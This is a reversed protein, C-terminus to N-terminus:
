TSSSPPMATDVDAGHWAGNEWWIVSVEFAAEITSIAWPETPEAACVLFTRDIPRGLAFRIEATRTAAARLDSYTPEASHLVEFLLTGSDGSQIIDAINGDEPAGTEWLQALLRHRLREHISQQRDAAVSTQLSAKSTQPPRPLRLPLRHPPCVTSLTEQSTSPLASTAGGDISAPLAAHHVISLSQTCRTLAVYLGRMGSRTEGAIAVPEVVVVHDFEIGKVEHPQLIPVTNGHITGLETRLRDQLSQDAPVIVATSRGDRASTLETVHGAIAEILHELSSARQM